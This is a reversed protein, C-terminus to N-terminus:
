LHRIKNISLKLEEGSLLTYSSSTIFELTLDTSLNEVIVPKLCNHSALYRRGCEISLDKNLYKVIYGAVSSPSGYTRKLFSFGFRWVETIINQLERITKNNKTYIYPMDFLLIHYHFSGFRYLKTAESQHKEPVAIYRFNIGLRYKLRMIFLKLDNKTKFPSFEPKSYTLTLFLPFQQPQPDIGFNTYVLDRLKRKSVALQSDSPVPVGYMEPTLVFVDGLCLPLGNKECIMKNQRMVDDCNALYRRYDFLRYNSSYKNTSDVSSEFDDLLATISATKFRNVGYYKYYYVLDGCIKYKERSFIDVM